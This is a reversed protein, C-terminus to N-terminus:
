DTFPPIYRLLTSDKVPDIHHDPLASSRNFISQGAFLVVMIIIQLVSYIGTQLYYQRPSIKTKWKEAACLAVPIAAAHLAIVVQWGQLVM